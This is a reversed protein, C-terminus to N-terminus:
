NRILKATGLKLSLQIGQSIWERANDWRGTATWFVAGSACSQPDLEQGLCREAFGLALVKHGSFAAKTAISMLLRVSSLNYNGLRYSNNLVLIDCGLQEIMPADTEFLNKSMNELIPQLHELRDVKVDLSYDDIGFIGSIYKRIKKWTSGNNKNSGGARMFFKVISSSSWFMLEYSLLKWWEGETRPWDFNLLQTALMLNRLSQIRNIEHPLGYSLAHGLRIYFESVLNSGLVGELAHAEMVVQIHNYIVIMEKYAECVYCLYNGYMVLYQIHQVIEDREKAGTFQGHFCVLPLFTPENESKICSEYFKRLRSHYMQKEQESLRKTYIADKVEACTFIYSMPFPHIESILQEAEKQQIFGFFDLVKIMTALKAVIQKQGKQHAHDYMTAAIEELSFRRGIVSACKLFTQFEESPMNDFNLLLLEDTDGPLSKEFESSTNAFTLLENKVKLLNSNKLYPIVNTIYGYRGQTKQKIVETLAKDISQAWLKFDKQLLNNLDNTTVGHLEISVNEPIECIQSILPARWCGLPTTSLLVFAKKCKRVISMTITWSVSDMWQVDSLLIAVPKKESVKDILRVFLAALLFTRGDPGIKTTDTTDNISARVLPNLLPLTLDPNEGARELSQKLSVIEPDTGFRSLDEEEGKDVSSMKHGDPHIKIKTKFLHSFKTWSATGTRSMGEHHRHSNAAPPPRMGDPRVARAQKKVTKTNKHGQPRPQQQQPVPEPGSEEESAESITTNERKVASPVSVSQRRKISGKTNSKLTSARKLLTNARDQTSNYGRGSNKDKEISSVSEEEKLPISQSIESDITDMLQSFISVYPFLPHAFTGNDVAGGSFTVFNLKSLTKEARKFIGGKGSGVLGEIIVTRQTNNSQVDKISNMIIEMQENVSESRSKRKQGDVVPKKGVLRTLEYLGALNSNPNSHSDYPRFLGGM